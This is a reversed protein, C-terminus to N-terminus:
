SDKKTQKKGHKKANFFIIFFTCEFDGCWFNHLEGIIWIDRKKKITLNKKKKKSFFQTECNKGFHVFFNAVLFNFNGDLNNSLKAEQWTAAKLNCLTNSNKKNRVRVTQSLSHKASIIGCVM